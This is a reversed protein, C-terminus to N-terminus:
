WVTNFGKKLSQNYKEENFTYLFPAKHAGGKRVHDLKDLISFSLMKRQFNRRDLEEGLITEYLIRLENMTFEIPLLNKGIPEFRLQNRLTLLAKDIITAHDLILDPIENLPVWDCLEANKGPSPIVKSFELLAYYGLTIFRQRFWSDMDSQIVQDKVLTDVYQDSSRYADGFLHFQKLYIDEISTRSKLERKAADDVNENKRVFGGPVAWKKSNKM